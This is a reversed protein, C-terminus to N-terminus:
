SKGSPDLSIIDGTEPDRRVPGEPLADQPRPKRGGQGTLDDHEGGKGRYLAMLRGATTQHQGLLIDEGSRVFEQTIPVWKGERAVHTGGTSRCDTLFFRGDGHDIIEAHIRSVSADDLTVDAKESRGIVITRIM